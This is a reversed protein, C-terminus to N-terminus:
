IMKKADQRGMNDLVKYCGMKVMKDENTWIYNKLIM